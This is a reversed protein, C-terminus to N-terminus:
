RGWPITEVGRVSTPRVAGGASLTGFHVRGGRRGTSARAAGSPTSCCPDHDAKLRALLERGDLEPMKLDLIIADPRAEKLVRLADYGDSAGLVGYGEMQLLDQLLVRNPDYDDVVLITSSQQAAAIEV